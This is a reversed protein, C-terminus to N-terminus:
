KRRCRASYYGCTGRLPHLVRAEVVCDRDPGKKRLRATVRVSLEGHDSQPTGGKASRFVPVLHLSSGKVAPEVGLAPRGLFRGTHPVLCLRWAHPLAPPKATQPAIPFSYSAGIVGRSKVRQMVLNAGMLRVARKMREALAALSSGRGRQPADLRLPNERYCEDHAIALVLIHRAGGPNPRFACFCEPEFHGSSARLNSAIRRLSPMAHRGAAGDRRLTPL